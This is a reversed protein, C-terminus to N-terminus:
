VAALLLRVRIDVIDVVIDVACCTPQLGYPYVVKDARIGQSPEVCDPVPQRHLWPPEPRETNHRIDEM